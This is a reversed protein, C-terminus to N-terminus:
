DCSRGPNYFFSFGSILFKKKITYDFITYDEEKNYYVVKEDCNIKEFSDLIEDIAVRLDKGKKLSNFSIVSMCCEEEYISGKPVIIKKNTNPSLYYKRNIPILIFYIGFFLFILFIVIILVRKRYKM